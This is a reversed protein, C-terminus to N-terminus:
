RFTSIFEEIVSPLAEKSLELQVFSTTKVVQASTLQAEVKRLGSEYLRKQPLVFDKIRYSYNEVTVMSGSNLKIKRPVFDEQDMWLISGESLDKSQSLALAVRGGARSVRILPDQFPVYTKINTIPPPNFSSPPLFKLRLFLQKLSQSSGRHFFLEEIYDDSIAMRNFGYMKEYIPRDNAKPQAQLFGRMKLGTSDSHWVENWTLKSELDVLQFNAIINKNSQTESYKKLISPADPVFAHTAISSFLTTLLALIKM